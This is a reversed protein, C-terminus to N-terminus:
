LTHSKGEKLGPMYSRPSLTIQFTRGDQLTVKESRNESIDELLINSLESQYGPFLTEDLSKGLWSSDIEPFM